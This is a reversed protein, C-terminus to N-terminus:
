ALSSRRTGRPRKAVSPPASPEHTEDKSPARRTKRHSPHVSHPAADRGCGAQGRASRIHGVSVSVGPAFALMRLLTM